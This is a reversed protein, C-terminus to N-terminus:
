AGAKGTSALATVADNFWAHLSRSGQEGGIIRLLTLLRGLLAKDMRRRWKARMEVIEWTERLAVRQNHIRKDLMLREARMRENEAKAADLAGLITRIDDQDLWAGGVHIAKSGGAREMAEGLAKLRDASVAVWNVAEDKAIDAPEPHSTM